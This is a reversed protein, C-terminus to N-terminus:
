RVVSLSMLAQTRLEQALRADHAQARAAREFLGRAVRSNQTTSISLFQAAKNFAIFLTNM